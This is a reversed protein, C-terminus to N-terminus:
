NKLRYFFERILYNKSYLESKINKSQILNGNLGQNFKNKQLKEDKKKNLKARLEYVSNRFNNKVKNPIIEKISLILFNQKDYQDSIIKYSIYLIGLLVFLILIYFFNKMLM